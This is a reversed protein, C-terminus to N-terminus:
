IYEWWEDLGQLHALDRQLTETTTCLVNEDEANSMLTTEAQLRTVITWELLLKM